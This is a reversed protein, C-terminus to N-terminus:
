HLRMPQVLTNIPTMYRRHHKVHSAISSVKHRSIPKRQSPNLLHYNLLAQGWESEQLKRVIEDSRETIYGARWRALERLIDTDHLANAKRSFETVELTRLRTPVTRYAVLDRLIEFLKSSWIWSRFTDTEQCHVKLTQIDRPLMLTEATTTDGFCSESYLHVELTELRRMLAHDGRVTLRSPKGFLTAEPGCDIAVLDAPARPPEHDPELTAHLKKVSSTDIENSVVEWASWEPSKEDQFYNDDVSLTRMNSFATSQAKDHAMAAIARLAWSTCPREKGEGPQDGQSRAFWAHLTLQRVKPCLLVLLTLRASHDGRQFAATADTYWRTYQQLPQTAKKWVGLEQKTPLVKQERGGLTLVRVHHTFAPATILTRLLPIGSRIDLEPAYYLYPTLTDHFARSTRCLSRLVSQRQERIENDHLIELLLEVPLSEM